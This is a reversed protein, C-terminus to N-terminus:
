LSQEVTLLLQQEQLLGTVTGVYTVRWRKNAGAGLFGYASVYTVNMHLCMSMYLSLIFIKFSYKKLM